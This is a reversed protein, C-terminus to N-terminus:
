APRPPMPVPAARSPMPAFDPPPLEGILDALQVRAGTVLSQNAAIGVLISCAGAREDAKRLFRDPGAEPLFIDELMLRDGGGHDGEASWPAIEYGTSRLPIIRLRVGDASVGGQVTETGNVYVSEVVSHELRGKTGNFAVTYGEWANFANLSYSLTAGTDYTVLANLTDEIDIDPRFVCRDRWYGDHQEQDLYLAKLGPSSRLDLHFGCAATEPCTACREHPGSLGMRRAMAPTYFERKGTAAVAVPVAGLWWNVLDFHHTSKHVFLGGSNRKQAHWRRFYDAGHHTNLLWHFDVSLVEGIVGSMLLEKVQSRPPSYRYNFTVRCHRGTQRCTELIQRCHAAETTMPKETIVDCGAQMARILYGHHASDITAVIVVDPRCESLMRDFDAAAYGPPVRAGNRASRARALEIRGPNSDCVAVLEAWRSHVKEIGDQYLERRSGLGVIAYRRRPTAAANPQHPLDSM